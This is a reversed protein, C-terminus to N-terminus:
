AANRLLMTRREDAGSKDLYPSERRQSDIHGQENSLLYYLFLVPCAAAADVRRNEHGATQLRSICSFFSRCSSTREVSLSIPGAPYPDIWPRQRVSASM